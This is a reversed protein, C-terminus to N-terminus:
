LDNILTSKKLLFQDYHITRRVENLEKSYFAIDDIWTVSELQGSPNGTSDSAITMRNLGFPPVGDGSGVNKSSNYLTTIETPTLVKDFIIVEDLTGALFLDSPTSDFASLWVDINGNHIDTPITTVNEIDLVGDIYIALKTTSEFVGVIHHIQGDNIVTTGQAEISDSGDSSILFRISNNRLEFLYSDDGGTENEWKSLTHKIGTETTNILFSFSKSGTNVPINGCNVYQDVGDFNVSTNSDNILLGQTGLTPSNVYTGNYNGTEDSAITIQDNMRYYVIPTLANVVDKYPTYQPTVINDKSINYLYDIETQTLSQDIIFPEDITGDFHWNEFTGARGIYVSDTGDNLSADATSVFTNVLVSDVYLKYDLGDQVMIIHYTTDIVLNHSVSESVYYGGAGDGINLYWVGGNMGFTFRSDSNGSLIDGFLAHLGSSVNNSKILCGWTRNASATYIIGTDIAQDVGNFTVATNDNNSLLGTEGLTPSNLYTGDFNGTEDMVDIGSSEGLRYYAYPNLDKVADQYTPAVSSTYLSKVDTQTLVKNYISVEDIIADMGRNALTARSNILLSETIEGSGFNGGVLITQQIGDKWFEFSTGNYSIVINYTIGNQIQGDDFEVKHTGWVGSGFGIDGYGGFGGGVQIVVFSGTGTDPINFIHSDQSSTRNFLFSLSFPNNPDLEPITSEIYSATNFSIANNSNGYLLGTEGLTPSGNFSGDFNGTEDLAMYLEGLRYYALPTLANVVDEYPDALILPTLTLSGEFVNDIYLNFNNANIITLQVLHYENIDVTTEIYHFDDLIYCKLVGAPELQFKYVGDGTENNWESLLTSQTHNGTIKFNFEITVDNTVPDIKYNDNYLYNNGVVDKNIIVSNKDYDVTGNVTLDYNGM